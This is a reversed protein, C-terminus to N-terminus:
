VKKRQAEAGRRNLEAGMDAGRNGANPKTSENSVSVLALVDARRFYAWKSGALHVAPLTSSEVLGRMVEETIGLVAIVEGRRLFMKDPLEM